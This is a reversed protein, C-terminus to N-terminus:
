LAVAEIRGAASVARRSFLSGWTVVSGAAVDNTRALPVVPSSLSDM